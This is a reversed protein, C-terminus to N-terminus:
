GFKSKVYSYSNLKSLRLTSQVRSSEMIGLEVSKREIRIDTYVSWLRMEQSLYMHM